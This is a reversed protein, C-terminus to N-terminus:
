RGNSLEQYGEGGNWASAAARERRLAMRQGHTFSTYTIKSLHHKDALISLLKEACDCCIRLSFGGIEKNTLQNPYQDKHCRECKVFM